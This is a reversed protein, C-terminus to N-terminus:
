RLWPIDVDRTYTFQRHWKLTWLDPLEVKRISGDAFVANVAGKHRDMCFRAMDYAWQERRGSNWDASTPVMGGPKDLDDDPSGGYWACDLLLPVNSANQSPTKNWQYDPRGRWGNPFEGSDSLDNIWHNVGYSGYDGPRLYRATKTEDPEGWIEDTGGYIAGQPNKKASPCTRFDDIEDYYDGLVVSWTSGSTPGSDIWYKDNNDGTYMIFITGWQKLNSQCVIARAQKKVASLSPMLISLLLAIISIVVLLEILTFGKKSMENRMKEIRKLVSLLM